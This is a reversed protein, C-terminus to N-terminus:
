HTHSFPPLAFSVEFLIPFYYIVANCGSLQQMMQSSLGLLMRRFHQPKGGTFLASIPTVGGAHGSAKISEVIVSVQSRVGSDEVPKGDLAALVKTADEARDKTLLWRPSEPSSTTNTVLLM